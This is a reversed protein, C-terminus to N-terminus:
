GPTGSVVGVGLLWLVFNVGSAAPNWLAFNTSAAAAAGVINGAAVGTSTATLTMAFVTGTLVAEQYRAVIDATRLGKIRNLTLDTYAGAAVAGGDYAAAKTQVETAM